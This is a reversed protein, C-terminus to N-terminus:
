ECNDTDQEYHLVKFQKNTTAPHPDTQEYEHMLDPLDPLDYTDVTDTDLGDITAEFATFVRNFQNWVAQNQHQGYPYLASTVGSPYLISDYFTSVLEYYYGSLIASAAIESYTEEAFSLVTKDGISAYNTDIIRYKANNSSTGTIVIYDNINFFPTLFGDLTVSNGDEFAAAGSYIQYTDEIKLMSGKMEIRPADSMSVTEDRSAKNDVDQESLHVQGSFKEWSGAIKPTLEINLDSYWTDSSFYLTSVQYNANLLRVYLKGTYPIIIEASSSTLEGSRFLM